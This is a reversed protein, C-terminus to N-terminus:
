GSLKLKLVDYADEDDSFAVEEKSGILFISNMIGGTVGGLFPAFIYIWTKKIHHGSETYKVTNLALGLAPNFCAGSYYSVCMVGAFYAAGLVVCGLIRSDKTKGIMLAVTTILASFVFEAGFAQNNTSEYTPEFYTLTRNLGWGLYAGPMASAFQVFIILFHEIFAMASPSKYLLHRVLHGLTIAPNLHPDASFGALMMIIIAGGGTAFPHGSNGTFIESNDAAALIFAFIFTGIAEGFVRHWM